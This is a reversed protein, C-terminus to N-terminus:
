GFKQFITSILLAPQKNLEVINLPNGALSIIENDTHENILIADVPIEHVMKVPCGFTRIEQDFIESVTQNTKM